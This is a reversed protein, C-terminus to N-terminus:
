PCPSFSPPIENKSKYMLWYVLAGGSLVGLAYAWGAKLGKPVKKPDNIPPEETPKPEELAEPESKPPETPEAAEVPTENALGLKQAYFDGSNESTLVQSAEKESM